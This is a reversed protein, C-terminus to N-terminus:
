KGFDPAVNMIMSWEACCAVFNIERDPVTPDYFLHQCLQSAAMGQQDGIPILHEINDFMAKYLYTFDTMGAIFQRLSKMKGTKICQFVQAPDVTVSSLKSLDFTGGIACRQLTNMLHRIDPYCRDVVLEIEKNTYNIKENQLISECMQTAQLKDFTTFAWETCRSRLPDIIRNVHNATLIFRCTDSYTEMTNKLAEQAQPTIGDAEDLFVIKLKVGKPPMARCFATVETRMTEISRDKGSANLVLATCPLADMLIKAITTKGSGASGYFLLHPINQNRIYSDLAERVAPKLVMNNLNRPRYKEAWLFKELGENKAM